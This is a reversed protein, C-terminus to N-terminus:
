PLAALVRVPAGPLALGFWAARKLLCWGRHGRRAQVIGAGVLLVALVAFVLLGVWARIGTLALVGFAVVVLGGLLSAPSFLAHRTNWPQEQSSALPCPM